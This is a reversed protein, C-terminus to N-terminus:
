KSATRLPYSLASPLKTLRAPASPMAAKDSTEFLITRLWGLVRTTAPPVSISPVPRIRTGSAPDDDAVPPDHRCTRSRLDVNGLISLHHIRSAFRHKGSQPIHVRMEAIGIPREVDGRPHRGDAVDSVIGVAEIRNQVEEKTM